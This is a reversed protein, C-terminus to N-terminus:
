LGDNMCRQRDAEEVGYDGALRWDAERAGEM